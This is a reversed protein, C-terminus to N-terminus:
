RCETRFNHLGCAIETVLDDSKEKTNRFVDRVIRCRKIGSIVHEVVIRVGSIISNEIQEDISLEGGRPKKKPQHTNVGEPEYGQFGTDKWLGIDKPFVLQEEDCLKKDHKKGECTGSLYKVKRDGVSVIVNNKVSHKKKRGNYFEKQKENDKPRQIDRDTGDIAFEADGDETLT